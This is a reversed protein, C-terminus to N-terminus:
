HNLNRAAPLPARRLTDCFSQAQHSQTLRCALSYCATTATAATIHLASSNETVSTADSVLCFTSERNRILFVCDQVYLWRIMERPQLKSTKPTLLPNRKANKKTGVKHNEQLFFISTM